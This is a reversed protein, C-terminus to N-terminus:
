LCYGRSRPTEGGGVPPELTGGHAVKEFGLMRKIWAVVEHSSPGVPKDLNVVGLELLEEVTRQEPPKGFRPDAEEEDRILVERKVLWQPVRL